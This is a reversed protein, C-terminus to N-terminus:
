QNKQLASFHTYCKLTWVFNGWPSLLTYRVSNIYCDFVGKIKVILRSLTLSELLLTYLKIEEVNPLM